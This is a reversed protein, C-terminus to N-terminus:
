LTEWFRPDQQRYRLNYTCAGILRSGDVPVQDPCRMARGIEFTDEDMHAHAYITKVMGEARRQREHVTVSEHAPYLREIMARIGRLLSPSTGEGHLRLVADKLALELEPGPRL